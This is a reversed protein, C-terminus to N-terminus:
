KSEREEQHAQDSIQWDQKREFFWSKTKNMKKKNNKLDRNGRQGKDDLKKIVFAVSATLKINFIM